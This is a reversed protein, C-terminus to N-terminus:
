TAGTPSARVSGAASSASSRSWIRNAPVSSRRRCSRAAPLPTARRRRARCASTTSRAAKATSSSGRGRFRPRPHTTTCVRSRTGGTRPSTPSVRPRSSSPAPEFSTARSSSVARPGVTAVGTGKRVNMGAALQTAIEGMGGAPLAAPGDSFTQLVFDLFRSSTTLREELFIGRLFPAFFTEVTSRAVGARRLADATTTEEGGGRLLKLVAAGDRVGVLGGALARLSRVPAHRPDALRRFRGESRIIAGREFLGLDLRELDLVARAERYATPLVQFGHDLLFGDVADTRVRGGITHSRELVLPERGAAILARACALGAMGAGVVIVDHEASVIALTDRAPSRARSARRSTPSGLRSAAAELRTPAVRQGELLMEEGMQGFAAKVATAPVPFIAPRHLARGLAKVFDQNTVAGPAVVNVPGALPQELAFLYAAVADELSVWSWWQRGSGVRGGTGLRFPLLMRALAGGDKSLVIGQRLHVTRLGAARAPEAAAEWAEVVDALFGTGPVSDEDVIEDGRDGYFGTASACVLVPRGALGAATEAILRTGNVRSDLVRRRM